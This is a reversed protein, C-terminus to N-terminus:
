DSLSVKRLVYKIGKIIFMWCEKYSRINRNYFTVITRKNLAITSRTINTKKHINSRSLLIKQSSIMRQDQRRISKSINIVFSDLFIEKRQDKRRISLKQHQSFTRIGHVRPTKLIKVKDESVNFAVRKTFQDQSRIM